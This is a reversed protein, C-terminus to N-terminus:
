IVGPNARLRHVFFSGAFFLGGIAGLILPPNGMGEVLGLAFAQIVDALLQAAAELIQNSESLSMKIAEGLRNAVGFELARSFFYSILGTLLLALGSWRLTHVLNPLHIAAMGLASGIVMVLAILRGKSLLRNLRNRGGEIDRRLSEETVEPNGEAATSILDLRGQRELALRTEAIAEEVIPNAM